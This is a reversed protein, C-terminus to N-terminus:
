GDASEVEVAEVEVPTGQLAAAQTVSLTVSVHTAAVNAGDRRPWARELAPTTFDPIKQYNGDAIAMELGKAHMDVYFPLDAELKERARAVASDELTKLLEQFDTRHKLVALENRGVTARACSSAAMRQETISPQKPQEALWSAFARMWPMLKRTDRVQVTARQRRERLHLDKLAARDEDTLHPNRSIPM